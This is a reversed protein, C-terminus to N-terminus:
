CAAQGVSAHHDWPLDIDSMFEPGSGPISIKVGGYRNYSEDIATKGMPTSYVPFGTAKLFDKVEQQADFRIVCADVIVVLDGEAERVREQILDLVFEETQLDNPATHRTLPIKLREGSIEQHVMDTPVTMYVPRARTICQVIAHDIQHAAEHKEMLLAQSITFQRSAINYADYRGDGLTHHLIPRKKQQATSPVGVLHLVPVMESFAGAIGNMASLEGVGFTTLVVGLSNQKVRAYGDAAYAANLENCNGVWDIDPHDEILDLFGLNFDGPLGFIKTVGLQALRTLIYNGITINGVAGHTVQLNKMELKLRNVESKLADVVQEHPM